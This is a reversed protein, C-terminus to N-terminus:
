ADDKEYYICVKLAPKNMDDNRIAQNSKHEAMVSTVFASNSVAELAKMSRYFSFWLVCSLALLVVIAVWTRAQDLSDYGLGLVALMALILGICLTGLGHTVDVMRECTATIACMHKETKARSVCYHTIISWADFLTLNELNWAIDSPGRVELVDHLKTIVTKHDIVLWKRLWPIWRIAFYLNALLYGLAGSAVFIGAFKALLDKSGLWGALDAGSLWLLGLGILSAALGPLTFRLFRRIEDM